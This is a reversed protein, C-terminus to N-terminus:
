FWDKNGNSSKMKFKRSRSIFYRLSFTLKNYDYESGNQFLNYAVQGHLGLLKIGISPSFGMAPKNYKSAAIANAGYTFNTRGVKIWPGVKIGFANGGFLYEGAVSIGFTKPKVLKLQKWQKEYGIELGNFKGKQIGILIGSKATNLAPLQALSSLAFLMSFALLVLKRM